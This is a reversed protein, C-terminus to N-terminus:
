GTRFFLLARLVYRCRCISCSLWHDVVYGFTGLFSSYASSAPNLSSANSQLCPRRLRLPCLGGCPRAWLVARKSVPNYYIENSKMHRTYCSRITQLIILPLLNKLLKIVITFCM